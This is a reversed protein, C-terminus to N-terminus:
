LVVANSVECTTVDVVQITLGCAGAPLTVTLSSGIIGRFTPTAIDVTTGACTGGLVTFSGAVGSLLANSGPGGTVSITTFGPCTGSTTLTLGSPSCCGESLSSSIFVYPIGCTSSDAFSITTVAPVTAFSGGDDLAFFDTDAGFRMFEGPALPPTFDITLAAPHGSSSAANTTIVGAYNTAGVVIDMADLYSAGGDFDWFASPENSLDITFSAVGVTYGNDIGHMDATTFTSIGDHDVCVESALTYNSSFPVVTAQNLFPRISTTDPDVQQSSAISTLALLAVLTRLPSTIM